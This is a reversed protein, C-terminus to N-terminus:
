DGLDAQFLVGRLALRRDGTEVRLILTLAPRDTPKTVWVEDPEIYREVRQRDPSFPLLRFHFTRGARDTVSLVDNIDAARLPYLVAEPNSADGGIVTNGQGVFSNYYRVQGGADDLIVQGAEIQWRGKYVPQGWDLAAARLYAPARGIFQDPILPPTPTLTPSPTPTITPTPTHTATPTPTDLAAAQAPTSPPAVLLLRLAMGIVVLLLLAGGGILAYPLYRQLPAATDTEASDPRQELGLAAIVAAEDVQLEDGTVGVELTMGNDLRMHYVGNDLDALEAELGAIETELKQIEEDLLSTQDAM